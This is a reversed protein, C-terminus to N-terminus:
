VGVEILGESEHDTKWFKAVKLGAHNLIAEWQAETREMGNLVAMMNIDLLAPYLPVEKVPLVWEFIILKSYGATMAEAINKLIAVCEKDPWDYFIQRFYYARAGTITQKAFFDNKERTVAKELSKINDITPGLDQLVLKGPADPFAHHFAEIDHGEGGAVDVLLVSEPDGSAGDLLIENVPFVDFWNKRTERSGAMFANFNSMMVPDNILWQFM